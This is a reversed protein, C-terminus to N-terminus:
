RTEHARLHTYSVATVVTNMPLQRLRGMYNIEWTSEGTRGIVVRKKYLMEIAQKWTIGKNPERWDDWDFTGQDVQRQLLARKREAIKLNAPTYDLGTTIRTQKAKSSGDRAPLSGLLYIKDGKVNVSIRGM